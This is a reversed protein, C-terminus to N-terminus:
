LEYKKYEGECPPGACIFACQHEFDVIMSSVTIRDRSYSDGEPSPHSCISLPFYKHDRLADMVDSVTIAGKRALLLERLRQDRNKPRGVIADIEPHMVFHNAHTLIGEGPSLEDAGQPHWEFDCAIAQRADTLLINNSITRPTHLILEKASQFDRCMLIKRRLFTVPIGFGAHDHISQLNNTGISIGYNNFGDRIMQGAETLGLIRTGDECIVHLILLHEMVGQSFDWNKFSLTVHRATAEPLVVGTTCEPLKPFKSIEYRCNIVMIEALSVGSGEAIGEAEEVLDPFERCIVETYRLAFRCVRDWEEGKKEFFARYYDRAKEIYRAAQVGYQIGRERPTRGEIRIYPYQMM